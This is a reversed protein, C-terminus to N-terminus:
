LSKGIRIIRIGAGELSIEYFNKYERGDILDVGYEYTKTLNVNVESDIANIFVLIEEEEFIRSFVLYENKITINKYSGYSFAKHEKRISILKKVFESIENNVPSKICPRLSLDGDEKRGKIGWESGYYICPIGPITFLLGYAAKIFRDDTLISSIRSVDHNDLFTMLHLNNYLSWNEGGFQRNLSYSIEYMNKSNISSHIGKYVEYNTCSHLMENNVFRNYDGFLVEGILIFDEGLENAFSRLRKLFSESLLYAVDLRLGSINFEEKWMRIANFIHNIVDENDLRLKVLEFHGEWGEYYLGDNYPSNGHFDIYFWDKYASNERNILVDRFAFFGRGVHNFVGDLVIKINNEYLKQTVKKLDDNSGLRNDIKYFDRTDYGHSDSEFLPSFYVADVGLDLLHPIYECFELIKSSKEGNNVPNVGFFGMPYIQYFVNEYAWM